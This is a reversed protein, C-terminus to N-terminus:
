KPTRRAPQGRAIIGFNRLKQYLYTRSLKLSQSMVSIQRGSSRYEEELLSREVNRMRERLGLRQPNCRGAPAAPVNASAPSQPLLYPPLHQIDPPGHGAMALVYQVVNYLERANGPWSHCILASLFEGGLHPCPRSALRRYFHGFLLEIDEQRQRLPALLIAFVSLRAYLDARFDQDRVGVRLDVQSLAVVRFCHASGRRARIEQQKLAHNLRGQLAAPMASINQLLLVGNQARVCLGRADADAEGFLVKGGDEAGWAACDYVCWPRNPRRYGAALLNQGSGPEGTILVHGPCPATRAVTQRAAKAPPSGGLFTEGEPLALSYKAKPLCRTEQLVGELVEISCAKPVFRDAGLLMARVIFNYDDLGSHVIIVVTPYQGAIKGILEFGEEQNKLRLDLLVADFDQAALASFMELGDAVCSLDFKDRLALGLAQHYLPDDDCLLVRRKQAM